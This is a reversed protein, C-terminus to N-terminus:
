DCTSVSNAFEPPRQLKATGAVSVSISKILLHMRWAPVLPLCWFLFSILLAKALNLDQRVYGVQRKQWM